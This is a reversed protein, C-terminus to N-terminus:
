GILSEYHAIHARAVGPWTRDPDVEQIGYDQTLVSVLARALDRASGPEVLLDAHSALERIGEIDSAVIPVGSGYARSGVGTGAASLYPLCVARARSLEYDLEAEAYGHWTAHVRSDSVKYDGGEDGPSALIRLQAQPETEWVETMAELLLDIGKYKAARGFFLITKSAGTRENDTTRVGHPIVVAKAREPLSLSRLGTETHVVILNAARRYLFQIVGAAAARRGRGTIVGERPSPEHLTIVTPMRRALWLFRPDSTQQIHFYDYPMRRGQSLIHRIEKLSRLSSYKGSLLHLAVGNELLERHLREAELQRGLFEPSSDRVIMSVRHSKAAVAMALNSGYVEHWDCYYLGRM